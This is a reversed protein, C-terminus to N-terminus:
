AVIFGSNRTVWRGPHEHSRRPPSLACRHSALLLPLPQDRTGELRAQVRGPHKVPDRSDRPPLPCAQTRFRGAQRDEPMRAANAPACAHDLGSWPAQLELSCPHRKPPDRFRRRRRPDGFSGCDLPPFQLVSSAFLPPVPLRSASPARPIPRATRATVFAADRYSHDTVSTVIWASRADLRRPRIAADGGSLQRALSERLDPGDLRRAFRCYARFERGGRREVADIVAARLRVTQEPDLPLGKM